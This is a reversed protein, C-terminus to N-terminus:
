TELTNNLLWYTFICSLFVIATDALIVVWYPLVRKTFYWNTMRKILNKAKTM